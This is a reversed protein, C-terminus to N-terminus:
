GVFVYFTVVAGAKGYVVPAGRRHFPDPIAEGLVVPVFPQKDHCWQLEPLRFFVTPAIHTPQSLLQPNRTGFVPVPHRYPIELTM